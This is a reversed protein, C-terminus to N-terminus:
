HSLLVDLRCCQCGAEGCQQSNSKDINFTQDNLDRSLQLRLEVSDSFELM